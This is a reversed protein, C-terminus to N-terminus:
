YFTNNYYVGCSNNTIQQGGLFDQFKNWVSVAFMPQWHTNSCGVVMGIWTQQLYPLFNELEVAFHSIKLGRRQRRHLLLAILRHSSANFQNM